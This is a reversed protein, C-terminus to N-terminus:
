WTTRPSITLPRIRGPSATISAASAVLSPTDRVGTRSASFRMLSSPRTSTKACLPVKMAGILRLAAARDGAEAADLLNPEPAVATTTGAVLVACLALVAVVLRM